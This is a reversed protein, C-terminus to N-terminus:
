NAQLTTPAPPQEVIGAALAYRTLSAAEHINLKHMVSQRHKEVTKISVHLVDAIQKNAYGEAVLQLVETERSTLRPKKVTSKGGEVFSSRAQQLMRKSITPSFFANGRSTERIAQLLYNSATQKVLYSTAGAEMVDEIFHDESYTSLVLVRSKPVERRVQRIAEVGNLLPMGLDMIVVNPQLAKAKEVAERGNTAEGVVEVDGSNDLILRLAERVITHDDAILVTIKNANM